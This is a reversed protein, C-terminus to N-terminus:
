QAHRQHIAHRQCNYENRQVLAYAREEAVVIQGLHCAPHHMVQTARQEIIQQDQGIAVVVAVIGTVQDRADGVVYGHNGARRSIRDLHHDALPQRHYEQEAIQQPHVPLQGQHQQRDQWDDRQHNGHGALFEALLALLNLIGHAVNGM